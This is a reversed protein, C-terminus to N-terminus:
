GVVSPTSARRPRAPTGAFGAVSGTGYPATSSLSSTKTGPSIGRRPMNACQPRPVPDALTSSTKGPPVYPMRLRRIEASRIGSSSARGKSNPSPAPSRIRSLAWTQAAAAAAPTLRIARPRRSGVTPASPVAGRRPRQRRGRPLLRLLPHFVDPGRRASGRVASPRGDGGARELGHAAGEPWRRAARDAARRRRDLGSGATEGFELGRTALLQMGVCIGLFPVGRRRM